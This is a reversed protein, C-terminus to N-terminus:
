GRAGVGDGVPRELRAHEDAEVVVGLDVAAGIPRELLQSAQAGADDPDRDVPRGDGLPARLLGGVRCVLGVVPRCDVVHDRLRGHVLDSHERRDVSGRAPGAAGSVTKRAAHGVQAEERVSGGTAVAAGVADLCGLVLRHAPERCDAVPERPVLRVVGDEQLRLPLPEASAPPGLASEVVRLDARGDPDSDVRGAEGALLDGAARRARAAVVGRAARARGGRGEDEHRPQATGAELAEVGVRVVRIVRAPELPGAGDRGGLLRDREPVDAHQDLLDVAEPAPLLPEPDGLVAVLRARGVPLEADAVRRLRLVNVLGERNGPPCPSDVHDDPEQDPVLM